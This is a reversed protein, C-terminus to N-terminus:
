EICTPKVLPTRRLTQALGVLSASDMLAGARAFEGVVDSSTLYVLTTDAALRRETAADVAAGHAYLGARALARGAPTARDLIRRFRAVADPATDLVRWALVPEPTGLCDGRYLPPMARLGRLQREARDLPAIAAYIADWPSVLHLVALVLGGLLALLLAFRPLSM